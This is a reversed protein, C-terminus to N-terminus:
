RSFILFNAQLFQALSCIGGSDFFPGGYFETANKCLKGTSNEIAPSWNWKGARNLLEKPPPGLFAIMQALHAKCNYEGESSHLNTFLEKNELMNWIQIDNSIIEIDIATVFWYAWTGFIQM